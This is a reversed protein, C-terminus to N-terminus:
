KQAVLPAGCRECFASGTQAPANCSPCETVLRARMAAVVDPAPEGRPNFEYLPELVYSLVASAVLVGALLEIM